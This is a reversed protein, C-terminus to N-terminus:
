QKCAARTSAERGDGGIKVDCGIGHCGDSQMIVVHALDKIHLRRDVVSDTVIGPTAPVVDKTEAGLTVAEKGQSLESYVLGLYIGIESSAQM